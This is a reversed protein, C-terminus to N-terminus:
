SSSRSLYKPIHLHFNQLELKRRYVNFHQSPQSNCRVVVDMDAIELRDQAKLPGNGVIGVHKTGPWFPACLLSKSAEESGLPNEVSSDLRSVVGPSQQM